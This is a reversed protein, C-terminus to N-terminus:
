FAPPRPSSRISNAVSVNLKELCTDGDVQGFGMTAILRGGFRVASGIMEPNDTKFDCSDFVFDSLGFAV